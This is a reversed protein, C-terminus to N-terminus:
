KHMSGRLRGYKHYCIMSCFNKTSAGNQIQFVAIHEKKCTDCSVQTRAVPTPALTTTPPIFLTPAAVPPLQPQQFAQLVVYHATEKVLSKAAAKQEKAGKLQEKYKEKAKSLLAKKNEKALKKQAKYLQKYSIYAGYSASNLSGDLGNVPSTIPLPPSSSISTSSDVVAMTAMKAFLVVQDEETV